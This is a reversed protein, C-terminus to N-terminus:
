SGKLQAIIELAATNNQVALAETDAETYCRFEPANGSPRLHVIDGSEFTIRPGDTFDLSTVPGFLESFLESAYSEGGAEFRAIM